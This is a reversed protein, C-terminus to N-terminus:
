RSGFIGPVVPCGPEQTIQLRKSHFWLQMLAFICWSQLTYYVGDSLFGRWCLPDASSAALWTPLTGTSCSARKPKRGRWSSTHPSCTSYCLVLPYLLHKHLTRLPETDAQATQASVRILLTKERIGETVHVQESTMQYMWGQTRMSKLLNPM